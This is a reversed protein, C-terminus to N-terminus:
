PPLSLLAATRVPATSVVFSWHVPIAAAYGRDQLVRQEFITGRAIRGAVGADIGVLTGRRGNERLLVADERANSAYGANQIDISREVAGHRRVVFDGSM